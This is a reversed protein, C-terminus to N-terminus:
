YKFHITGSLTLLHLLWDILLDYMEYTLFYIEPNKEIEEKFSNSLKEM